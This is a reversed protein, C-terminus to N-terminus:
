DWSRHKRRIPGLCAMTVLFGIAVIYVFVPPAALASDLRILRHDSIADIEAIMRPWLIEQLPTTPKLNLVYESLQRRLAAPRPSLRDDALAPWDDDIVSQTYEILIARPEKTEELSYSQLDYFTDSIAVAERAIANEIARLDFVVDAFALSLMLSVLVGVVRFLNGTPDKLESSQYKSILKYSVLYVAIGAATALGMTVIVGVLDSLSLIFEVM